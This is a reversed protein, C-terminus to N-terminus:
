HRLFTLIFNAIAAYSNSYHICNMGRLSLGPTREIEGADSEEEEGAKAGDTEVEERGEDGQRENAVETETTTSKATKKTQTKELGKAKAKQESSPFESRLKRCLQDIEGQGTLFM